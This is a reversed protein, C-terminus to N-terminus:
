SKSCRDFWQQYKDKVGENTVAITIKIQQCEHHKEMAIANLLLSAIKPSSFEGSVTLHGDLVTGLPKEHALFELGEIDGESLDIEALQQHEPSVQEVILKERRVPVQVMQTEIEKRVVVEGVKRKRHDAILREELLRVINEDKVEGGNGAELPTRALYEPMLELESKDTDLIICQGPQDIKNIKKSLMLVLRQNGQPSIVLNLRQNADLILDKVKGIIEGQRDRVSFDRIKTQLKELLTQISAQHNVPQLNNAM